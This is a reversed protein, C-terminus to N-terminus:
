VNRMVFMRWGGKRDAPAFPGAFKTNPIRYTALNAPLPKHYVIHNRCFDPVLKRNPDKPSQYTSFRQNDVVYVLRNGHVGRVWKAFSTGGYGTETLFDMPQNGLWDAIDGSVTHFFEDARVNTHALTVEGVVHASHFWGWVVGSVTRQRQRYKTLQELSEIYHPVCLIIDDDCKTVWDARFHATAWAYVAHLKAGFNRGGATVNYRDMFVLDRYREQEVLLDPRPADLMFRAEIRAEPDQVLPWWTARILDRLNKNNAASVVGIVALRHPREAELDAVRKKRDRPPPELPCSTTTAPSSTLNPFAYNTVLLLSRIWQQMLYVDPLEVYGREYLGLSLEEMRSPLTKEQPHWDHLFQLLADTRKYLDDEADLDAIYNHDNRYQVVRPATSFALRLDLDWMLRLAAYSRWIDSVRGHVTIPLLLSWFGSPLVLTAQANWPAFLGTKPLVITNTADDSRGSEQFNFPLPQTLRYIADVDPDHNALVQLVAIRKTTHSDAQVTEVRSHCPQKVRSIPFGRPWCPRHINEGLVPYPNLVESSSNRGNGCCVTGQIELARAPVKLPAPPSVIHNDDDFDWISHAGQQIAYLYGLNKRGFHNWPLLQALDGLGALNSANRQIARIQRAPDLVVIRRKLGPKQQLMKRWPQLPTALDAVVCACWGEQRLLGHIAETPEHITTLVGWYRCQPRSPPLLTTDAEAHAETQLIQLERPTLGSFWLRGTYNRIREGTFLRGSVGSTHEPHVIPIGDIEIPPLRGESLPETIDIDDEDNSYYAPEPDSSSPIEMMQVATVVLVALALLAILGLLFGRGNASMAVLGNNRSM